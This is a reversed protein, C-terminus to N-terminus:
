RQRCAEKYKMVHLEQTNVFGGGAGAGVFVVEDLIQSGANQVPEDSDFENTDKLYKRIIEKQHPFPWDLVM